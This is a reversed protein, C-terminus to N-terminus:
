LIWCVKNEMSISNKVQENVSELQTICKGVIGTFLLESKEQAEKNRAWDRELDKLLHQEEATSASDGGFFCKAVTFRKAFNEVVYPNAGGVIGQAAVEAVVKPPIQAFLCLNIYDRHHFLEGITKELIVPIEAREKIPLNLIHPSNEILYHDIKEARAVLNEFEIGDEHNTSLATRVSQLSVAAAM